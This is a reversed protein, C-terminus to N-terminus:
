FVESFEGNKDYPLNDDFTWGLGSTSFSDDTDPASQAMTIKGCICGPECEHMLEAEKSVFIPKNSDYFPNNVPSPAIKGQVEALEREIQNKLGEWTGQASAFKKLDPNNLRTNLRTVKKVDSEEERYIDRAARYAQSHSFGKKGLAVDLDQYDLEARFRALYEEMLPIDYSPKQKSQHTNDSSTKQNTSERNEKNSKQETQSKVREIMPMVDTVQLEQALKMRRTWDIKLGNEDSHKKAVAFLYRFPDSVSSLKRCLADDGVKVSKEEFGCLWVKGATTLVVSKLNHLYEPIAASRATSMVESMLESEKKDRYSNTGNYKLNFHEKPEQVKERADRTM